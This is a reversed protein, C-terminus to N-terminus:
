GSGQEPAVHRLLTDFEADSAADVNRAIDDGTNPVRDPGASLLRYHDKATREYILETGWPDTRVELTVQTLTEPLGGTDARYREIARAAAALRLKTRTVHEATWQEGTKGKDAVISPAQTM